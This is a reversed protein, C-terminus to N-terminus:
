FKPPGVVWAYAVADDADEAARKIMKPPGVVWAYAVADDADEPSRKVTKPPGVVWAYAVADDADERKSISDAGPFPLANALISLGLFAALHSSFRM